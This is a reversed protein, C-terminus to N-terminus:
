AAARGDTTSAEVDSKTLTQFRSNDGDRQELCVVSNSHLMRPLYFWARQLAEADQDASIVLLDTDTLDNACRALACFPDGPILRVKAPLSILARHAEKFPIGPQDQPRAEFLDIGTYRVDGHRSAQGIMQRARMGTGLGIEVISRLAKRQILRYVCRDATPRSLYALRVYKLLDLIGM